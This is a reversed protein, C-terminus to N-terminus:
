QFMKKGNSHYLIYMKMNNTKNSDNSDQSPVENTIKDLNLTESSNANVVQNSPNIIEDVLPVHSNYGRKFM